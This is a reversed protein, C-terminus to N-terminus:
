ASRGFTIAPSGAGCAVVLGHFGPEHGSGRVHGAATASQLRM